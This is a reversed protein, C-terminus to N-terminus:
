FWELDDLEPISEKMDYHLEELDDVIEELIEAKAELKEAEAEIKEVAREIKEEFEEADDGGEILKCLNKLAVEAIKGGKAGIRAGEAGLEEAIEHLKKFHKYYDKVLGKQSRDLEIREGNVFLKYKKTIEVTEDDDDENSIVLVGEDEDWDVDCNHLFDHSYHHDDCDDDRDHAVAVGSFVLMSALLLILPLKM